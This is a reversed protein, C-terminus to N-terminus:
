SASVSSEGPERQWSRPYRIGARRAEAISRQASRPKLVCTNKAGHPTTGGTEDDREGDRRRERDEDDVRGHRAGPRRLDLRVVEDAVVAVHQEDALDDRCAAVRVAGFAKAEDQAVD